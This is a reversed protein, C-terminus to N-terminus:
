TPEKQVTQVIQPLEFTLTPKEDKIKMDMLETDIPIKILTYYEKINNM